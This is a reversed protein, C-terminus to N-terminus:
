PSFGLGTGSVHGPRASLWDIPDAPWDRWLFAPPCHSCSSDLGSPERGPVAPRGNALAAPRGLDVHVLGPLREEQHDPEDRQDPDELDRVPGVVVLEVGAVPDQRAAEPVQAVDEGRREQMEGPIVDLAVGPRQEDEAQEGGVAAHHLEEAHRQDDRDGAAQRHPQELAIALEGHPGAAQDEAVEAVDQGAPEDVPVQDVRQGRDDDRQGVRVDEGHGYGTSGAHAPDAVQAPQDAPQGRAPDEAGPAAARAAALARPRGPRNRALIVRLCELDARAMRAGVQM